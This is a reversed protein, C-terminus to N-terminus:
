NNPDKVGISIYQYENSRPKIVGDGYGLDKRLLNVFDELVQIPRGDDDKLFFKKYLMPIEKNDSYICLKSFCTNVEYETPKLTGRDRKYNTMSKGNVDTFEIFAYERNAIEIAEYYVDRKANLFNERKLTESATLPKLRHEFYKQFIFLLIGIMLFNMIVYAWIEQNSIVKIFAEIM